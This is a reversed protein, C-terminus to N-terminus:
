AANKPAPLQDYAPTSADFHGRLLWLADDLGGGASGRALLSGDPGPSPFSSGFPSVPLEEIKTFRGGLVYHEGDAAAAIADLVFDM